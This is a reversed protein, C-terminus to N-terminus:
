KKWILGLVVETSDPVTVEGAADRTWTRQAYIKLAANGDGFKGGFRLQGDYDALDAFDGGFKHIALGGFLGATKGFNLELAAGFRSGDTTGADFLGFDPGAVFPGVPFLFAGDLNWVTEGDNPKSLGGALSIETKDPFGNAQASAPLFLAILVLVPLVYRKM